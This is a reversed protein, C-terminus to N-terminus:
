TASAGPGVLPGPVSFLVLSWGPEPGLSPPVHPWLSLQEPVKYGLGKQHHYSSASAEPLFPSSM